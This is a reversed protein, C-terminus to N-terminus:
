DMSVMYGSFHDITFSISSGNRAVTTPRFESVLARGLLQDILSNDPFYAGRVNPARWSSFNTGNTSQVLVLPKDFTTGHPEFDYAVLLGPLRKIVFRTDSQVAGAPVTLTVQGGLTLTGGKRGIVASVQSETQTNVWLLGTVATLSRLTSGATGLVGGLLNATPASPASSEPAALREPSCAALTTAALAAGVTLAPRLRRTVRQLLTLM